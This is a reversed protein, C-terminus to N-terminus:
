KVVGEKVLKGNNYREGTIPNLLSRMIEIHKVMHAPIQQDIVLTTRKFATDHWSVGKLIIDLFVMELGTIRCSYEKDGRFENSIRRMKKYLETLPEFYILSLTTNPPIDKWYADILYVLDAAEAKRIKFKAEM